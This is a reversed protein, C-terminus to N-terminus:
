LQALRKGFEEAAPPGDATIIRGDVTVHEGTYIAGHEQLFQAQLGDGNWVTAKKGKLVGSVALICPAICIAGLAKGALAAERAIRHADPTKLLTKAGPGGIFAIRDYTRLKVDRLAVTSREQGGLKGQCLGIEGSAIVVNFGAGALGRRTEEVEIDQYGSKAIIILAKKAM